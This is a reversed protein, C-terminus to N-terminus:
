SMKANFILYTLAHILNRLEEGELPIRGQKDSNDSREHFSGDTVSSPDKPASEEMEREEHLSQQKNM